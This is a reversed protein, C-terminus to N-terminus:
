SSCCAWGCLFSSYTYLCLKSTGTGNKCQVATILASILAILILIDGEGYAEEKWVKGRGYRAGKHRGERRKRRFCERDGEGGDGEEGEGGRGRGRIYLLL